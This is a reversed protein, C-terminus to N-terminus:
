SRPTARALASNVIRDVARVFRGGGARQDEPLNRDGPLALHLAVSQAWPRLFGDLFDHAWKVHERVFDHSGRVDHGLRGDKRETIELLLRHNEAASRRMINIASVKRDGDPWPSDWIADDLSAVFQEESTLEKAVARTPSPIRAGVRLAAPIRSGSVVPAEDVGSWFGIRDGLAGAVVQVHIHLRHPNPGAYTRWRGPSLGNPGSGIRGNSIVLALRPDQTDLLRQALAHADMGDGPDHTIDLARVIGGADPNHASTRAAHLVDGLLGDSARSRSPAVANVQALLSLLAHSPRWAM